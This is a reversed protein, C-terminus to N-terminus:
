ILDVIEFIDYHQCFAIRILVYNCPALDIQASLKQILLCKQEGPKFYIRDWIFQDLTYLRYLIARHLVSGKKQNNQGTGM